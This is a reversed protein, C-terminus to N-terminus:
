GMYEKIAAAYHAEFEERPLHSYEALLEEYPSYTEVFEQLFTKDETCMALEEQQDIPLKKMAFGLRAFVAAKLEKKVDVTLQIAEDFGSLINLLRVVHGTSCWGRMELLEEIFRNELEVKNSSQQIYAYVYQLIKAMTHGHYTATDLVIRELSECADDRQQTRLHHLVEDIPYKDVTDKVKDFLEELAKQYSVEHINQEDNYLTKKERTVGGLQEIVRKGVERFNPTGLRILMDAAEARIQERERDDESRKQDDESRKEGEAVEKLYRQAQLFHTKILPFDKLPHALIFQAALLKFREPEPHQYLWWVYGHMVVDLESSSVRISNLFHFRDDLSLTEDKILGLLANACIGQKNVYASHYMLHFARSRDDLSLDSQIVRQYLSNLPNQTSHHLTRIDIGLFSDYTGADTTEHDIIEDQAYTDVSEASIGYETLDLATSM